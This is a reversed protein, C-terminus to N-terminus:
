AKRRYWEVTKKLGEEFGSRLEPALTYLPNTRYLVLADVAGDKMEKILAVLDAIRSQDTRVRAGGDVTV